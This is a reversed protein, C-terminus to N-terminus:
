PSSTAMEISYGAGGAALPMVVRLGLSGAAEGFREHAVHVIPAGLAYAGLFVGANRTAVGLGIAAGDVLLTQWGYWRTEREEDARAIAPLVLLALAIAISRVVAM